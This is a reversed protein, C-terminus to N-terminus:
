CNGKISYIPFKCETRSGNYREKGITRVTPFITDASRTVDFIVQDYAFQLSRETAPTIGSFGVRQPIANVISVSISKIVAECNKEVLREVQSQTYTFQTDNMCKLYKKGNPSLSVQGMADDPTKRINFYSQYKGRILNCEFESLECREKVINGNLRRVKNIETTIKLLKPFENTAKIYNHQEERLELEKLYLDALMNLHSLYMIKKMNDSLKKQFQILMEEEFVNNGSQKLTEKLNALMQANEDRAKTLESKIESIYKQFNILLDGQNGTKVYEQVCKSLDRIYESKEEENDPRLFERIIQKEM